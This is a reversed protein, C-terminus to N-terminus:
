ADRQDVEEIHIVDGSRIDLVSQLDQLLRISHDLCSVHDVFRDGDEATITLRWM